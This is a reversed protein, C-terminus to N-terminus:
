LAPFSSRAVQLADELKSIETGIGQASDDKGGAKGGLLGAVSSSWTKADFEKSIRVKPVFNIHAVKSTDQDSSFLYVGRDLTRAKLIVAQLIKPNANADPINTVYHTENPKEGFYSEMEEVAKKVVAAEVAKVGSDYAKRMVSLRDKLQTKKLLSIDAGALAVSFGKMAADKHRGTKREIFDLEQELSSAVRTAERAETGTIAIIRRIGKAIAAEETIILTKIDGTTKVHTGGCFEVSTSRWEPNTVDKIIDDLDFELAVVRVPDPYVEGFVARLGPIKRATQLDLDKSYVPVSKIIWQNCIDEIKGLEATTVQSKHSFDFRLKAPAVLSGRQDIHDGLIERLAFNLIHTGTHNNRL